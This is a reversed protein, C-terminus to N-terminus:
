GKENMATIVYRRAQCDHNDITIHTKNIPKCQYKNSYVHIQFYFDTNLLWPRQEDENIFFVDVWELRFFLQLKVM